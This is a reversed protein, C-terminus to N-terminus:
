SVLMGYKKEFYRSINLYIITFDESNDLTKYLKDTLYALQLQTNHGPRYGSQNDTLLQHSTIHDYFRKFVLKEFIKSVCPLLSIPRYNKLESPSGKGKFIPKVTARKWLSPYKGAALSKNFIEALPDAIFIAIMKLLRTPLKDPGSAKSADLRNITNLVENPTFVISDIHNQTEPQTNKM